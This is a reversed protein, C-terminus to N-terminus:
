DPRRNASGSRVASGNSSVDGRFARRYMVSVVAVMVAFAALLSTLVLPHGFGETFPM